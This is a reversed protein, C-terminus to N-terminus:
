RSLIPFRQQHDNTVLYSLWRRLCCLREFRATLCGLLLQRTRCVTASPNQKRLALLAKCTNPKTKTQTSDVKVSLSQAPPQKDKVTADASFDLRDADWSSLVFSRSGKRVGNDSTRYLYERCYRNQLRPLTLLSSLMRAPQLFLRHTHEKSTVGVHFAVRQKWM